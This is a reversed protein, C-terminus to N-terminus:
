FDHVCFPCAYILHVTEVTKRAALNMSKYGRERPENNIQDIVVNHADVLEQATEFVHFCEGCVRYTTATMPELAHHYWCYDPHSQDVEDEDAM